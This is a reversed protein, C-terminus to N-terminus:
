SKQLVKRATILAKYWDRKPQDLVLPRRELYSKPGDISTAEFGTLTQLVDLRAGYTDHLFDRSEDTLEVKYHFNLVRALEEAAFDLRQDVEGAMAEGLKIKESVSMDPALGGLYMAKSANINRQIEPRSLFIHPDLILALEIAIRRAGDTTIPKIQGNDETYFTRGRKILGENKLFWTIKRSVDFRADEDLEISKELIRIGKKGPGIKITTAASKYEQTLSNWKEAAVLLEVHKKSLERYGDRAMKLLDLSVTLIHEYQQLENKSNYKKQEIIQVTRDLVETIKEILQELTLGSPLEDSAATNSEVLFSALARIRNSGRAQAVRYASRKREMNDLANALKWTGSYEFVLVPISREALLEFTLIIMEEVDSFTMFLANDEDIAAMIRQIFGQERDVGKKLNSSQGLFRQHLEDAAAPFVERLKEVGSIIKEQHENYLDQVQSYLGVRRYTEINGLISGLEEDDTLETCAFVLAQPDLNIRRLLQLAAERRRAEGEYQEVRMNRIALVLDGLTDIAITLSEENEEEIHGLTIDYVVKAMLGILGSFVTFSIFYILLQTSPFQGYGIYYGGILGLGTVPGATWFIQMLNKSWRVRNISKRIRDGQESRDKALSIGKDESETIRTKKKKQTM